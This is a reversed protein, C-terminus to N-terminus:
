ILKLSVTELRKKRHHDIIHNSTIRMIWTSFRFQPTYSKLNRYVKLFVDQALDSAEDNDKTMRLIISYVLNKYRNVLETFCEQDGSLCAEILEMDTRTDKEAM